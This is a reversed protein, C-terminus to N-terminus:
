DTLVKRLWIQDTCQMGNEFIPEPYHEIFYNPIEAFKKFGLSQYLHLQGLSSNGTAIELEQIGQKKVKNMVEQLLFRGLGNGQREEKIALNMIEGLTETKKVCVCVGIQEGNDLLGFVEGLTLYNAVMAEDPDALYLLDMPYESFTLKRIDM